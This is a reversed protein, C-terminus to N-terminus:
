PNKNARPFFHHWFITSKMTFPRSGTELNRGSTHFYGMCYGTDFQIHECLKIGIPEGTNSSIANKIKSKQDATQGASWPSGGFNQDWRILCMLSCPNTFKWAFIHVPLRNELIWPFGIGDSTMVWKDMLVGKFYFRFGKIIWWKIRSNM